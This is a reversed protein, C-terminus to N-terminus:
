IMQYMKCHRTCLLGNFKESSKKLSYLHCNYIVEYGRSNRRETQSCNQQRKWIVINIEILRVDCRMVIVCCFALIKILWKWSSNFHIWFTVNDCHTLTHTHTLCVSCHQWHWRFSFGDCKVAEVEVCFLQHPFVFAKGRGWAFHWQIEGSLIKNIEMHNRYFTLFLFLSRQKRRNHRFWCLADRM